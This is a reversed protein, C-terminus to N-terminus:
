WPCDDSPGTYEIFARQWGYVREYEEHIPTIRRSKPSYQLLIANDRTTRLAGTLRNKTVKLIGGEGNREYRLVIDAKNTIDSSGSILDNEDICGDASGKRPHAVLIVVIDYKVAIAKLKGVFNSQALYLNKQDTVTDMATMLNDICVLEVGYQRVVREVTETLNEEPIAGNDYVFARGRYWDNLMPIIGDKIRYEPDGYKNPSEDINAAGALQFDLWSKFHDDTLEGSYVFVNRNQNLGEAVLQSMFTSKGEGRKGTLIVLQGPAFGHIVRDLERIGTKITELANLDVSRVDALDRVNTLKPIEANEVCHKVAGPGYRRLIDNADKEGLYDQVRVVRTRIALRKILGDVLTVKGNECDGFVIIEQFRNIWSWCPQLWTFGTAGTPVSVVNELGAEAVSLADIQGETVILQGYNHCQDMGFLIPMTGKESWEKNRDRGKMFDTKRYKVFILEGAENYFPFVLVKSDKDSVTIHYRRTVTESIGRGKLYEVAEDRSVPKKQPLRRYAKPVDFQLPYDFDRCLEVFHGQHDCSARLCKYAGSRTNIAFTWEDPKSGGRCYPCLRLHLEEGKEKTDIGQARAFGYIDELKLNYSM